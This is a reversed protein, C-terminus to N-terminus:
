HGTSPGVSNLQVSKIRDRVETLAKILEQCSALEREKRQLEAAQQRRTEEDTQRHREFAIINAEMKGVLETKTKLEEEIQRLRQQLNQKEIAFADANSQAERLRAAISRREEEVGNLEHGKRKLYQRLDEIENDKDRITRSM